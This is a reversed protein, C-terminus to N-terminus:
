LPQGHPPSLNLKDGGVVGHRRRWSLAYNKRPNIRCYSPHKRRSTCDAGVFGMCGDGHTGFWDAGVQLVAYNRGWTKLHVFEVPEQDVLSAGGGGVLLAGNSGGGRTAVNKYNNAKILRKQAKQAETLPVFLKGKAPPVASAPPVM